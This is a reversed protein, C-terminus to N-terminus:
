RIRTWAGGVAVQAAEAAGGDFLLREAREWTALRLHAVDRGLGPRAADAGAAFTSRWRAGSNPTVSARARIFCPTGGFLAQGGAAGRDAPGARIRRQQRHPGDAPRHRRPLGHVHRGQHVDTAFGFELGAGIGSYAVATSANVDTDLYLCKGTARRVARAVVAFRIGIIRTTPWPSPASTWRAGRRRQPRHPQACAGGWDGFEGQELQIPVLGAAAAAVLVPVARLDGALRGSLARAVRPVRSGRSTPSARGRM